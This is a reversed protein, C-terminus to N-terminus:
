RRGVVISTPRLCCISLAIRVRHNPPKETTSSAANDAAPASATPPSVIGSSASEAPASVIAFASASAKM